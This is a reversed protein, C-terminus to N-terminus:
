AGLAEDIKRLADPDMGSAAAAAAAPDALISNAWQLGKQFEAAHRERYENWSAVLLDGQTRGTIGAFVELERKVNEPVKVQSSM